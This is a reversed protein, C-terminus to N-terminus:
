QSIFERFGCDSIMSLEGSIAADSVRCPQAVRM